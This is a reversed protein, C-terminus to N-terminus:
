TDLKIYEYGILYDFAIPVGDSNTAVGVLYGVTGPDIDSALFSATQNPTLCVSSDAVACTSGDVFFLHVYIGLAGNTNTINIRTNNAVGGQASSSYLNYVLMSGKKQDGTESNARLAPDNPLDIGPDAALSAISMLVIAFTAVLTHTLKHVM